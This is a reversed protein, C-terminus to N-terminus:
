EARTMNHGIRRGAYIGVSFTFLTMAAAMVGADLNYAGWSFSILAPVVGSLTLRWQRTCSPNGAPDLDM